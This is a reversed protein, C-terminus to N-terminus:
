EKEDLREGMKSLMLVYLTQMFCLVQLLADTRWIDATSGNNEGDKRGKSDKLGGLATYGVGFEGGEAQFQSSPIM